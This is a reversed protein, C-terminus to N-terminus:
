IKETTPQENLWEGMGSTLLHAVRVNLKARGEKTQTIDEGAQQSLYWAEREILAQIQCAQSQNHKRLSM